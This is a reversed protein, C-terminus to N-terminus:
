LIPTRMQLVSVSVIVLAKFTSEALKVGGSDALTQYPFLVWSEM